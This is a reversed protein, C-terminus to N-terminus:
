RGGCNRTRQTWTKVVDNRFVNCSSVSRNLRRRRMSYVYKSVAPGLAYNARAFWSANNASSNQM